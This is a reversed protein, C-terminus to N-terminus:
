KEYLRLLERNSEEINRRASEIKDAVERIRAAQATIAAINREAVQTDATKWLSTPAKGGQNGDNLKISNEALPIVTFGVAWQSQKAEVGHEAAAILVYEGPTLKPDFLGLADSVGSAAVSVDPPVVYMAKDAFDKAEDAVPRILTLEAALKTELERIEEDFAKRLNAFGESGAANAVTGFRNKEIEGRAEPGLYPAAIEAAAELTRLTKIDSKNASNFGLSLIKANAGTLFMAKAGAAYKTAIDDAKEVLPKVRGLSADADSKAKNGFATLKDSASAKWAAASSKTLVVYKMGKVERSGTTSSSRTVSGAVDQKMFFFIYSAIALSLVLSAVLVTSVKAPPPPPVTPQPAPAPGGQSLQPIPASSGMSLQPMPASPAGPPPPPNDDTYGYDPLFPTGTGDAPPPPPADMPFPPPAESPFPPPNEDRKKLKLKPAASQAGDEPEDSLLRNLTEKNGELPLWDASGERRFLIVDDAGAAGIKWTLERATMPGEAIGNIELHYRSAKSEM